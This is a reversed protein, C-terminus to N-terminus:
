VHAGPKGLGSKGNIDWGWWWYAQLIHLNKFGDARMMRIIDRERQERCAATIMKGVNVSFGPAVDGGM